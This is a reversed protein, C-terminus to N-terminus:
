YVSQNSVDIFNLLRCEIIHGKFLKLTYAYMYTFINM